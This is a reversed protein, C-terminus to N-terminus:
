LFIASLRILSALFNSVDNLASKKRSDLFKMKALGAAVSLFYKYIVLIIDISGRFSYRFNEIFVNERTKFSTTHPTTAM